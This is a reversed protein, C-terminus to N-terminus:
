QSARQLNLELLKALIDEDSMAPDWGYAAFVAEDLRRHALDLWTPRQNYLNTLTRKKLHKACEDDKPLLRPYRVTGIGRDDAEHVYRAWPGDVSGPFELVEERTWEPPNLWNNRLRDLENATGAIEARQEDTTEAFPFTEFCTTPTYRPRTELRTGLKLAWVEHLRSHLVGFFYDDARAYVVTQDDTVMPWQFWAFVRHKAVRPTAIFRKLGLLAGRMEPRMRQLKWWNERLWKNRNTDRKLKVREVVIGHPGEYLTAEDLPRDENDVLWRQPLRRLIDLGNLIPRLVDSNPRGNPNGAPPLLKLAEAETIDFPGGKTTGIFSVGTNEALTGAAALDIGATLASTIVSVERGDLVRKSEIGNDFGIMSVHVNAGALIWERDSEAFFIDGTKKIRNLVERNAGGRIGQTALLGARKFKGRNVGDGAKEFWYACLDAGGPVRGDYLDRLRDVYDDGLGGRMLKDGLFPPNGVIFDSEPWEPEKPNEPDSLDIIADMLRISEIPELVPNRPPNFGNHHMWQLYGIWIVVQALEQAYPNVEIGALQTPRVQPLLSVGRTAGHTIVQKELDLLLNVAVYLFNGSGCAPDLIRVHALEEVFDRLKRDLQKRRKTQTSRVGKSTTLKSWLGDCETRVDEWRRRLPTMVVPELLTLIDERSTYHAGIQSRKEPDLTREFLTGFISPEVDGWEYDNVRIVDEIEEPRLEIVDADAFLGGNFHLIEDAGFDGGSCMAEFLSGLRAALRAPDNKSGNLIRSFLKEPLLRIDEAFMCFMLKMLFHAADHSEVGRQRMGDALQGFQEAAQKTISESTQGPRLADPETFLKRLVDLNAPQPLGTLDFCHVLKATGTFNTHIEFRELDCVVLLPPNDLAERYLLLQQYAAALDKHKGKYEWGFHGRMWVDAWGKGGTTKTVGREFTYWAGEPDAEAPKPQGLMDCLDLFHQQYASKESLSAKKWKAIFEQPTM